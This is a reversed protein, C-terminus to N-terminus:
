SQCILSSFNPPACVDEDEGEGVEGGRGKGNGELGNGRGM